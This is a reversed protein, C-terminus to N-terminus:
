PTPAALVKTSVAMAQLVPILVALIGDIAAGAGPAPPEPIPTGAIVGLATVAATLAGALTQTGDVVVGNLALSGLRVLPGEVVTATLDTPPTIANANHRLGPEFIADALAHTRGNVPDVSGGALLWQALCRDTFVVHGTDGPVLPTTVYGLSGGVWRVRATPIVIAGQPVEEDAIFAVPLLGLVVKATQLAPDYTVVTAPSSVRVELEISRRWLALLDNLTAGVSSADISDRKDQGSM